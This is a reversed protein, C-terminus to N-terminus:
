APQSQISSVTSLSDPTEFVTMGEMYQGENQTRLTAFNDTGANCQLSHSSMQLPLAHVARPPSTCCSAPTHLTAPDMLSREATEM